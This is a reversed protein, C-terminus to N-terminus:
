LLHDLENNVRVRRAQGLALEGLLKMLKNTSTHLSLDTGGVVVVIVTALGTQNTTKSATIHLSLGSERRVDEQARRPEGLMACGTHGQPHQM